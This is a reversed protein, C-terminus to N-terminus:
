KEIFSKVYSLTGNKDRNLVRITGGFSEIRQSGEPTFHQIRNATGSTDRSYFLVNKLAGASDIIEVKAPMKSQKDIYTMRATGQDKLPVEEVCTNEFDFKMSKSKGMSTDGSKRNSDSRKDSGEDEQQSADMAREETSELQPVPYDSVGWTTIPINTIQTMISNENQNTDSTLDGIRIKGRMISLTRYFMGFVAMESLAAEPNDAQDVGLMLRSMRYEINAQMLDVKGLWEARDEASIEDVERNFRGNEGLIDNELAYMDEITMNYVNQDNEQDAMESKKTEDDQKSSVQIRFLKPNKLAQTVPPIKNAIDNLKKDLVNYEPSDLKFKNREQLAVGRKTYTKILADLLVDAHKVDSRWKDMGKRIDRIMKKDITGTRKVTHVASHIHALFDRQRKYVHQSDVYIWGGWANWHDLTCGAANFSAKLTKQANPGEYMDTMRKLVRQVEREYSLLEDLFDFNRLVTAEEVADSQTETINLPTGDPEYVDLINQIDKIREKIIIDRQEDFFSDGLEGQMRELRQKILNLEDRLKSRMDGPLQPDQLMERNAELWDRAGYIDLNGIIDSYDLPTRESVDCAIFSVIVVGALIVAVLWNRRFM